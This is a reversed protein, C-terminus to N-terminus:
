AREPRDVAQAVWDKTVMKCWKNDYQFETVKLIELKKESNIFKYVFKKFDLNKYPDSIRITYNNELHIEILFYNVYEHQYIRRIKNIHLWFQDEEGAMLIILKM